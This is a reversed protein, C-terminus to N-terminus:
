FLTIQQYKAIKRKQTKTRYDKTKAHKSHNCFPCLLQLNSVDNDGDKSLPVVHDVHLGNKQTLSIKEGCCICKGQQIQFLFQIDETTYNGIASIKRARRRNEIVTKKRRNKRSWMKDYERCYNRHKGKARYAKLKERNAMSYEKSYRDIREKNEQYYKRCYKKEEEENIIYLTREESIGYSQALEVITYGHHYLGRINEKHRSTLKKMSLFSNLCVTSSAKVLM